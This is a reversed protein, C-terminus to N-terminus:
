LKNTKRNDTTRSRGDTEPEQNKSKSDQIKKEPSSTLSEGGGGEREQKLHAPEGDIYITSMPLYQITTCGERESPSEAKFVFVLKDYGRSERPVFVEKTILSM